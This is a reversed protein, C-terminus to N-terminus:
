WWRRRRRLARVGAVARGGGGGHEVRGGPRLRSWRCRRCRRGDCGACGCSRRQCPIMEVMAPLPRRWSRRRSRRRRRWRSRAGGEGLGAADADVGGAIDVDGVGAVLADALEAAAGDGRDRAGALLAVASVSAGGRADIEVGGLGDRRIGEAVEGDGVLEVLADACGCKRRQGKGAVADADGAWGLADGQGVGSEAEIVTAVMVKMPGKVVAVPPVQGTDGIVSAGPALQVWFM